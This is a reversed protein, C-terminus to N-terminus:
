CAPREERGGPGAQGRARRHRRPACDIGLLGVRRPGSPAVGGSERLHGRLTAPSHMKTSRSARASTCTSAAPCARTSAASRACSTSGRSNRRATRRSSRRTKCRTRTRARRATPTASSREVADAPVPSLERDKRRRIVMHHSLVGRVAETFGCGIGGRAGQVTELDQHQGARVEAVGARRLVPVGGRLGPLLYPGPRARHTAVVPSRGSSSVEPKRATGAPQHGRQQGTAKVYGTDVLGALATSWSGRM